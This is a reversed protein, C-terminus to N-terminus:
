SRGPPPPLKFVPDAGPLTVARERERLVQHLMVAMRQTDAERRAWGYARQLIIEVRDLPLTPANITIRDLADVQVTVQFVVAPPQGNETEPM